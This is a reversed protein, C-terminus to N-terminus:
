FFFLSAELRQSEILAQIIDFKGEIRYNFDGMWFCVDFRDSVFNPIGKLAKVNIKKQLFIRCTPSIGSKGFYNGLLTLEREARGYDM